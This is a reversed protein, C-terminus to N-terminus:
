GTIGLQRMLSAPDMYVHTEVIQDGDYRMIECVSLEIKKGTAAITGMPGTLPGTHTGRGVFESATYNDSAIVNKVELKCDPMATLWGQMFGKIEERGTHTQGFAINIWKADPKVNQVAADLNRANFSEYLKKTSTALDQATIM